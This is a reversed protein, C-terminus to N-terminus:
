RITERKIKPVGFKVKRLWKGLHIGGQFFLWCIAVPVAVALFLPWFVIVLWEFDDDFGIAGAIVCGIFVGLVWIGIGYYEPDV